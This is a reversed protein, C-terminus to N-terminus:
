ETEAGNEAAEKEKMKRDFEQMEQELRKPLLDAFEKSLQEKEPDREKPAVKNFYDFFEDIFREIRKIASYRSM